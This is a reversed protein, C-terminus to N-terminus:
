GTLVPLQRTFVTGGNRVHELLVKRCLAYENFLAMAKNVDGYVKWPGCLKYDHKCQMFGLVDEPPYGLFFGIEHPFDQNFYFRKSLFELQAELGKQIPYGVEALKQRTKSHKLTQRLLHPCYMFLLPREDKQYFVTICIDLLAFQEQVEEVSFFKGSLLAAPKKGYLVPACHTAIIEDFSKSM